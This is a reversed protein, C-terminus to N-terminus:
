HFFHFEIFLDKVLLVPVWSYVIYQYLSKFYLVDLADRNAGPRLGSEESTIMCLSFWGHRGQPCLGKTSSLKLFSHMLFRLPLKFTQSQQKFVIPMMNHWYVGFFSLAAEGRVESIKAVLPICNCLMVSDLRGIGLLSELLLNNIVALLSLWLHLNM